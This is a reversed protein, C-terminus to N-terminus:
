SKAPRQASEMRSLDISALTQKIKDVSTQGGSLEVILGNELVVTYEVHSGDKRYNERVTRKGQRYVKEVSGNSERDVTMNAWGAVGMLSGLGGIDSVVLKLQQGGNGYEATASSGAIGMAAGSQVDFGTRPLGGLQEPLWSKIDQAAYPVGTAGTMAGMIDAVAKGAAAGDGSAQASEMRKGAEEMKKAMDELKATNINISGGPTNISVDPAGSRSGTMIGHRGGSFAASLIGLIIGAVIGCAILVATYPLSKEPPCKMLVPVGTYILYVSYLATLLGLMSLAPILSFVGGVFGATSGYAILKLASFPDQTGGFKPALANAILSIVFVMVLSMIYGVIMSVLGSVIPVRMSFGFGGLGILSMGIFASVAPILALYILYDKYLSATDGPEVAIVNWTENPKLLIDQVRQILNMGTVEM